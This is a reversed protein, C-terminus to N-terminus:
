SPFKAFIQDIQSQSSFQNAKIAPSKGMSFDFLTSPPKGCIQNTSKM